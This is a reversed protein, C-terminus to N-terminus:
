QASVTLGPLVSPPAAGLARTRRRCLEPCACAYVVVTASAAAAPLSAEVENQIAFMRLFMHQQGDLDLTYRTVKKTGRTHAVRRVAKVPRTRSTVEDTIEVQNEDM